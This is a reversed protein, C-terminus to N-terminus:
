NQSPPAGLADRATTFFDKGQREWTQILSLLRAFDQAGRKSRSGFSTKRTVVAPRLAREAENNDANVAPNRLWVLLEDLHKLIRRALRQCDPDSWPEQAFACLKERMEQYVQERGSEDAAVEELALGMELFLQHLQEHFHVRESDPPPKGKTLDHSDRLLHAWCKAKEVELPSYASFFDSIAVGQFDQGLLAKPVKSGRSRSILYLAVLNNVFVWLWHNEGDIRWGTEDIHVAAQQRMLHILRAYAPGFLRAVEAVMNIPEAPSVELGFYTALEHRIKGYSLGLGAKQYAVFLMVNLGLRYRPLATTVPHEKFARCQSCWRREIVYRTVTTPRVPEIDEVVREREIVRGTFPVSCDPCTEGASIRETRDIRSPRKRGSGPHGKARGRRKPTASKEGKPQRRRRSRFPAQKVETLEQQLRNNEAQLCVITAQAETLQAELRAKEALAESLAAQFRHADAQAEALQSRLRENEAIVETRIARSQTETVLLKLATM